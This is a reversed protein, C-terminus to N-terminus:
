GLLAAGAIVLICIWAATFLIPRVPIQPVDLIMWAAQVLRLALFLGAAWVTAVTSVGALHALIVAAAFPPYQEM